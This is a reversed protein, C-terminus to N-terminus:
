CEDVIEIWSVRDKIQKKIEQNQIRRWSPYHICIRGKNEKDLVERIYNFAEDYILEVGPKNIFQSIDSFICALRIIDLDWEYIKVKISDDLKLLESIHYGFGLGFVLYEKEEPFYWSEAQLFAEKSIISNSHLYYKGNEDEVALTMLGCLTGEVCYGERELEESSKSIKLREYLAENKLRIAETNRVYGEENFTYEENHMIMEQVNIIFTLVQLEYLDALLVYDKARRAALIGDLMEMVSDTSVLKFYTNEEIISKVMSSLYDISTLLFKFANKYDQKRFYYVTKDAKEILKINNEFIKKINERM